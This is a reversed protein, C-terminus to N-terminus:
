WFKKQLRPDFATEKQLPDTGTQQFAAVRQRSLCIAKESVDCGVFSANQRLAAITATGSGVFPDCVVFNEDPLKSSAIMAEFLEVPKQTMYPARHIRKIRWVDPIDRRTVARKGKSAFVIHECQRRFYHGMGINIKYWVIINKVDFIRRVVSGLSILSFPDFMIFIHRNNKLVRHCETLFICYNDETDLFEDFWKGNSCSREKYVGVIRGKGLMLHQNMGSYAPDTVILDVTNDPLSKLFALVDNQELHVFGNDSLACARSEGAESPFARHTKPVTTQKM